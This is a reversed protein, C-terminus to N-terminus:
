GAHALAPHGVDLTLDASYYHDVQYREGKSRYVRGVAEKVKTGM